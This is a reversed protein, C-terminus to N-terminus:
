RLSVELMKSPLRMVSLAALNWLYRLHLLHFVRKDSSTEWPGHKLFYARTRVQLEHEM